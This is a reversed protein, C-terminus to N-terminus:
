RGRRLDVRVRGAGRGPLLSAADDALVPPHLSVKLDPCYVTEGRRRTEADLPGGLAVFAPVDAIAYRVRFGAGDGLAEIHFAQDLDTSGAPDLTVLELATLDVEPPSTRPSRM